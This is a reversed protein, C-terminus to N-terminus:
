PALPLRYVDIDTKTNSVLVTASLVKTGQSTGGKACIALEGLGGDSAIFTALNRNSGSAPDVALATLQAFDQENRTLTAALVEMTLGGSVPITGVM